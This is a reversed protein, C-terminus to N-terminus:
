KAKPPKDKMGQINLRKTTPKVGRQDLFQGSQWKIAYTYLTRRAPSWGIMRKLEKEVAAVQPAGGRGFIRVLAKDLPMKGKPTRAM